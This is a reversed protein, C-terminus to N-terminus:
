LKELSCMLARRPNRISEVSKKALSSELKFLLNIYKSNHQLGLFWSQLYGSCSSSDEESFLTTYLPANLQNRKPVVVLPESCNHFHYVCVALTHWSLDNKGGDFQGICLSSFCKMCHTLAYLFISESSSFANSHSSSPHQMIWSARKFWDINSSLCFTTKLFYRLYMLSIFFCWSVKTHILSPCFLTILYKVKNPSFNSYM